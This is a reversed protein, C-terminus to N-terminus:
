YILRQGDPSRSPWKLSHMGREFGVLKDLETLINTKEILFSYNGLKLLSGQECVNTEKKSDGISPNIKNGNLYVPVEKQEVLIELFGRPHHLPHHGGASFQIFSACKAPLTKSPLTIHAEIKPSSNKSKTNFKLELDKEWESLSHRVLTKGENINQLIYGLNPKIKWNEYKNKSGITYPCDSLLPFEIVGPNDIPIESIEKIKSYLDEVSINGESTYKKADDLFREFSPLITERTEPNAKLFEEKNDEPKLYILSYGM